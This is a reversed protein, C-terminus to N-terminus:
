EQAMWEAQLLQHVIVFLLILQLYGHQQHLVLDVHTELLLAGIILQIQHYHELQIPTPQLTQQLHEQYVELELIFMM